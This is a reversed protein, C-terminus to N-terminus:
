MSHLPVPERVQAIVWFGLLTLVGATTIFM